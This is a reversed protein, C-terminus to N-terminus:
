RGCLARLFTETADKWRKVVNKASQPLDEGADVMDRLHEACASQANELEKQAKAVRAIGEPTQCGAPILDISDM